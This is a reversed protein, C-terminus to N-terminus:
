GKRRLTISRPKTRSPEFAELAATLQARDVDLVAGCSRCSAAADIVPNALDFDDLPVYNVVSPPHAGEGLSKVDDLEDPDLANDELEALPGNATEVIRGVKGKGCPCRLTVLTVQEM